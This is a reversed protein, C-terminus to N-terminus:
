ALLVGNIDVDIDLETTSLALGVACVYNGSTSPATATILGATASLYYITGATLGGTTGAVADWQGTTATLVGDTQVLGSAASATSASQMLGLVKKTGSAGASAKDVATNSSPYVPTCIVITGANGNVKSVVDVESSAASLTDGAPIQQIQGGILVLPKQVAM